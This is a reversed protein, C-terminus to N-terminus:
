NTHTNLSDVAGIRNLFSCEGMVNRIAQGQEAEPYLGFRMTRTIDLEPARRVNAYDQRTSRRVTSISTAAPTWATSALIAAATTDTKGHGVLLAM